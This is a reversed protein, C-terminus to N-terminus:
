DISSVYRSDRLFVGHNISVFKWVQRDDKEGVVRRLDTLFADAIQRLLTTHLQLNHDHVVAGALLLPLSNPPKALGVSAGKQGVIDVGAVIRPVIYTQAIRRLSAISKGGDGIGVHFERIQFVKGFEKGGDRCVFLNRRRSAVDLGRLANMLIGPVIGRGFPLVGEGPNALAESAFVGSGLDGVPHGVGQARSVAIAQVSAAEEKAHAKQLAYVEKILSDEEISLLRNQRGLHTLAAHFQIIGCVEGGNVVVSFGLFWMIQAGGSVPTVGLEVGQPFVASEGEVAFPEGGEGEEQFEKSQICEM